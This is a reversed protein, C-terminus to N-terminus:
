HWRWHSLCWILSHEDAARTHSRTNTEVWKISIIDRVKWRWPQLIITCHLFFFCDPLLNCICSFLREISISLKERWNQCVDGEQGRQWRQMRRETPFPFHKADHYLRKNHLIRERTHKLWSWQSVPLCRTCSVNKFHDSAAQSVLELQRQLKNHVSYKTDTYIWQIQLNFHDNLHTQPIGPQNQLCSSYIPSVPKYIQKFCYLNRTM